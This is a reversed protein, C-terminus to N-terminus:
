DCVFVQNGGILCAAFGLLLLSCPQGFKNPARSSFTLVQFADELLILFTLVRFSMEIIHIRYGRRSSRQWPSFHDWASVHCYASRGQCRRHCVFWIRRQPHTLLASYGKSIPPGTEVKSATGWVAGVKKQVRLCSQCFQFSHWISPPWGTCAFIQDADPYFVNLSFYLCFSWWVGSISCQIHCINTHLHNSRRFDFRKFLFNSDSNNAFSLCKVMLKSTKECNNCIARLINKEARTIM